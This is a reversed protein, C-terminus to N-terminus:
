CPIGEESAGVEFKVNRMENLFTNSRADEIAEPVIEVGYVQDAHQALFLSITGSRSTIQSLLLAISRWRPYLM